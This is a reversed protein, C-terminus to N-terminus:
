SRGGTPAFHRYGAPDLRDARGKAELWLGGAETVEGIRTLPVTADTWATGGELAEAPATFCLEYDDGGALIWDLVRQADGAAALAPHRPLLDANLRAGTGSAELIHGLDGALGDSVDICASARGVLWRGLAVRPQPRELAGVLPDAPDRRDGLIRELGAAARGPWGSVYVADGPQAGARSLDAGPEVHGAVQVTIALPGRTTDGGVLALGHLQALEGFGRAFAAFWADDADPHSLALTAWAPEAGAAALDSLGCALAKWGIDAPATAIPFHVGEVLTDISVALHRDAPPRLIACDEGIGRVTDAGPPTLQAFHRQILDFEDAM